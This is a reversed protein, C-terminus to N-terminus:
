RCAPTSPEEPCRHFGSRGTHPKNTQKNITQKNTQKNTKSRMTHPEGGDDDHLGDEDDDDNHLGDEDGDDHLGDEDGYYDHLGDDDDHLGDDEEHINHFDHADHAYYKKIICSLGNWNTSDWNSPFSATDSVQM